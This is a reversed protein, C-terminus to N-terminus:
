GLQRPEIVGRRVPRSGTHFGALWDRLDRAQEIRSPDGHDIHAPWIAPLRNGVSTTSPILKLAALVDPAEIVGQVIRGTPLCAKRGIFLPRAPYCLAHALAEPDTGQVRMVVSWIADSVYHKHRIHTAEVVQKGKRGVAIGATTWARDRQPSIQATQYDSLHIGVQDARAAYELSAQLLNHRADGHSYGLANALLGTLLSQGPLTDTYRHTNVAVSGASMLPSSLRLAVFRYM